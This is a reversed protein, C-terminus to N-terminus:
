SIALTLACALTRTPPLHPGAVAAASKTSVAARELDPGATRPDRPRPCHTCLSTQPSAIPTPHFTPPIARSSGAQNDSLFFEILQLTELLHATLHNPSHKTQETSNRPHIDVHRHGPPHVTCCASHITPRRVVSLVTCYNCYQLAPCYLKTPCLSM